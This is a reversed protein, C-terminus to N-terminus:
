TLCRCQARAERRRVSCRDRRSRARSSTPLGQVLRHARTIPQFIRDPRRPSKVKPPTLIEVRCAVGAWGVASTESGLPPKASGVTAWKEVEEKERLRHHIEAELRELREGEEEAKAERHEGM